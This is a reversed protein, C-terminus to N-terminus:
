IILKMGIHSPEFGLKEYFRQADDRSRDTTLQVMGCDANRAESIAYEFLKSGLGSGRMDGSVRVGEILARSLGQRAIGYIITLQLCGKIEGADDVAVILRNGSQSSLNKFATLYEQPLPTQYTERASGLIDDALMQVVADLDDLVVDRFYMLVGLIKSNLKM